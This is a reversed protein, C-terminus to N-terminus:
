LKTTDIKAKKETLFGLYAGNLAVTGIAPHYGAGPFGSIMDELMKSTDALLKFTPSTIEYQAGKFEAKIGRTDMKVHPASIDLLKKAEVTCTETEINVTKDTKITVDKEKLSINVSASDTGVYVFEKTTDIRVNQKKSDTVDVSGDELMKITTVNGDNTDPTLSGSTRKPPGRHTVTLEGKEDILFDIGQYSFFLKPEGNSDEQKGNPAFPSSSGEHPLIGTIIPRNFRGGLFELVVREGITEDPNLIYKDSEGKKFMPRLRIRSTNQPDGGLLSKVQVNYVLTEQGNPLVTRVTYLDFPTDNPEEVFLVEGELPVTIYDISDM